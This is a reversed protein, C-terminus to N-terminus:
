IQIRELLNAVRSAFVFFVAGTCRADNKEFSDTAYKCYVPSVVASCIANFDLKYVFFVPRTALM